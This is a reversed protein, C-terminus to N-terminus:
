AYELFYERQLEQLLKKDQLEKSKVLDFVPKNVQALRM